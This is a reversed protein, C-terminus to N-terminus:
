KVSGAKVADLLSKDGIYARWETTTYYTGGFEEEIAAAMPVEDYVVGSQHLSEGLSELTFTGEMIEQDSKEGLILDAWDEKEENSMTEFGEPKKAKICGSLLYRIDLMDEEMKEEQLPFLTRQLESVVKIYSTWKEGLEFEEDNCLDVFDSLSIVQISEGSFEQKIYSNLHKEDRFTNGMLYNEVHRRDVNGVDAMVIYVNAM